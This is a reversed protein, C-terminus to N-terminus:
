CVIYSIIHICCFFTILDIRLSNNENKLRTLESVSVKMLHILKLLNYFVFFARNVINVIIIQLCRMTTFFMLITLNQKDNLVSVKSDNFIIVGRIKVRWVFRTMSLSLIITHSSSRFLSFLKQEKTIWFSPTFFQYM